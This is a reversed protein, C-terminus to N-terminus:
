KEMDDKKVSKNAKRPEKKPTNQAKDQEEFKSRLEDYMVKIGRREIPIIDNRRDLLLLANKKQDYIISRLQEIKNADTENELKGELKEIVSRRQYIEKDYANCMRVKYKEKQSSENKLMSELEMEAEALEESARSYQDSLDTIAMSMRDPVEGNKEYEEKRKTFRDQAYQCIERKELVDWAKSLIEDRLSIEKVKTLMLKYELKLTRYRCVKNETEIDEVPRLITSSNERGEPYKEFLKALKKIKESYERMDTKTRLKEAMLKQETLNELM